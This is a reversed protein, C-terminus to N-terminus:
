AGAAETQPSLFGLSLLLRTAWNPRTDRVHADAERLLAVFAADRAYDAMRANAYTQYDFDM